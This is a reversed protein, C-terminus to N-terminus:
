ALYSTIGRKQKLIQQGEEREAAAPTEGQSFHFQM